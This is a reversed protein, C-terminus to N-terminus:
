TLGGGESSRLPMSKLISQVAKVPDGAEVIPRGMVFFDAGAAIAGAPTDTRKQDDGAASLRIGPTVVQFPQGCAKKIRRTERVSSIVGDLKAEAALKALAEAQDELTRTVGIAELDPADLSTLVTVGWLRPRKTVSAAQRMMELGGATHITASFIGWEAAREIAKKVVSPIDHFKMDLFIEAGLSRLNQILPSGYKLFLVPGVKFLKVQPLLRRALELADRDTEVDLAVILPNM